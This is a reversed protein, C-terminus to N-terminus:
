LVLRELIIALIIMIATMAAVALIAVLVALIPTAIWNQFLPQLWILMQYGVFGGLVMFEGHAFNIVDTSKYVLVLGLAILALIAGESFGTYVLRMFKQTEAADSFAVRLLNIILYALILLVITLFWNGRLWQTIKQWQSPEKKSQATDTMFHIKRFFLKTPRLRNHKQVM